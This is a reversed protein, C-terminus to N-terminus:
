TGATNIKYIEFSVDSIYENFYEGVSPESMTCGSYSYFSYGDAGWKPLDFVATGTSGLANYTDILQKVDAPHAFQFSVSFSRLAPYIPHGNGDFGIRERNSWAGKTPQLQFDIGNIAYTGSYGISM